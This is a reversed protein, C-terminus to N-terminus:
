RTQEDQKEVEERLKMIRRLIFQVEEGESNFGSKKLQEVSAELKRIVLPINSKSM